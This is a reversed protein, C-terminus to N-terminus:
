RMSTGVAMGGAPLLPQGQFQQRLEQLQSRVRAQQEPSLGALRVAVCM